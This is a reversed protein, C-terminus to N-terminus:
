WWAARRKSRRRLTTPASSRPSGVAIAPRGTSYWRATSPTRFSSRAAPSNGPVSTAFSFCMKPLGFTILNKGTPFKGSPALSVQIKNLSFGCEAESLTFTIEGKRSTMLNEADLFGRMNSSSLLKPRVRMISFVTGRLKRTIEGKRRDGSGSARQELSFFHVCSSSSSPSCKSFKTALSLSAQRDNMWRRALMTQLPERVTIWFIRRVRGQVSPRSGLATCATFSSCSSNSSTLALALAAVSSALIRM